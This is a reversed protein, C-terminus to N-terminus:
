LGREQVDQMLLQDIISPGVEGGVRGLGQAAPTLLGGAVNAARNTGGLASLLAPAALRTGLGLGGAVPDVAALAVANGLDRM